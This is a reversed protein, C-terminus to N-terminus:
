RRPEFTRNLVGALRHGALAIRMRVTRQWRTLYGAEVRRDSPYFDPASAVRCSEAAWEAAASPRPATRLAAVEARLAKAGGPWHDILGLDWVMHLNTGRGFAQVQYRNGGRDDAFAAHLPQHLDAVRHVVYKLAQLRELDSAASGLVGIQTEIAAVACQGDPCDRGAAYRCGADRALNVYHWRATLATRTDDAETSISALTAGPELALLRRVEARAAASLQREALTAVLRHAEPGWAKATVPLCLLTAIALLMARPTNMTLSMAPLDKAHM